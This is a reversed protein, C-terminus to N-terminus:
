HMPASVEQVPASLKLSTSDEFSLSLDVTEGVKLPQKLGILMIHFSGPKLAVTEGAPLDIKEVKRMKMVGGENVHNHLEVAAAVASSASVLAHAQTDKNQLQLFVASNTQGPAVARAFAGMVTVQHNSATVTSGLASQEHGMQHVHHMAEGKVEGQFSDLAAIKQAPLSKEAVALDAALSNALKTPVGMKELNASVKLSAGTCLHVQWHDKIKKLLARGGAQQQEWGAIAWDAQVVVPEVILPADPKEFTTKLLYTIQGMDNQAMAADVQGVHSSTHGTVPENAAVITSLLLWSSFVLVKM